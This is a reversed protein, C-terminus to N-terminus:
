NVPTEFKIKKGFWNFIWSMIVSKFIEMRTAKRYEIGVDDLPCKASYAGSDMQVYDGDTSRTKMAPFDSGPKILWIGKKTM